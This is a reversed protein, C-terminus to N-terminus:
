NCKTTRPTGQLVANTNFQTTIDSRGTCKTLSKHCQQPNRASTDIYTTNGIVVWCNTWWGNAALVIPPSQEITNISKENKAHGITTFTLLILFSLITRIM